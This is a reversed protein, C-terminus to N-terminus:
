PAAPPTSTCPSTRTPTPLTWTCCSRSSHAPPHTLPHTPPLACCLAPPRTPPHIPPPTPTCNPPPPPVNTGAFTAPLGQLRAVTSVGCVVLVLLALAKAVPMVCGHPRAQRAPRPLACAIRRPCRCAAHAARVQAVILNAMDDDVAGGLRVIRQVLPPPFRLPPTDHQCAPFPPQPPTWEPPAASQLRARGGELAYDRRWCGRRACLRGGQPLQGGAQLGRPRQTPSHQPARSDMRGCPRRRKGGAGQEEGWVCSARVGAVSTDNARQWVLAGPGRTGM